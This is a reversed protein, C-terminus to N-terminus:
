KIHCTTCLGSSNNSKRLFKGNTSDHPNHCSACEAQNSGAGFLPLVDVKGSVAAVFEAGALGGYTMSIPHDNALSTGLNAVGAPMTQGPTTLPTANATNVLSDYATAGDHCSLCGLSVGTPQGPVQDMTPSSYLAFAGATASPGRNWLVPPAGVATSAAHPTHCFVCIQATAPSTTLTTLDHKTGAVGAQASGAAGIMAIGMTAALLIKFTKM